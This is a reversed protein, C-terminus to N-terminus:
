GMGARDLSARLRGLADSSEAAATELAPVLGVAQVKGLEVGWQDFPNIGFFRSELYTRHEYLAILKGLTMPDVRAFGLISSPRGGAHVRHPALAAAAAGGAQVKPDALVDALSRGRALVNAQAFANSLTLVSDEVRGSPSEYPVVFDAAVRHTGQHLLQFFSHQGNNGAEGWLVAGTPYDVATGDLRVHKGNSEMTLQQLYAPLRHLREAYPLIAHSHCGVYHGNWVSFLAMLAPLNQALPAQLAHADIAHAGALLAEFHMSGVALEIALGVASWMSYRGGVWDWMTFRADDPVGFADMAAANTSVAAFHAATHAAGLAAALWARARNANTTTEITTFTKSCVVVLTTAPNLRATLDVLSAGDINSVFHVAFGPVAYPKLAETAMVPGLDSGGIGSNIVDTFRQGTAGVRRGALVDAVFGRLQARTRAIEARVDVGQVLLPTTSPDRLATHLAARGETPNVTAGGAQAALAAPLDASAALELLDALAADDILQRSYDLVVGDSEQRFHQRGPGFLQAPAMATLRAAHTTLRAHLDASGVPLPTTM